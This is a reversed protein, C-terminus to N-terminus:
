PLDDINLDVRITLLETGLMRVMASNFRPLQALRRRADDDPVLHAEGSCWRGRIQMRVQPNAEINKV